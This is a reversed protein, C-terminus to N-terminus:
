HILRLCQIHLLKYFTVDIVFYFCINDYIFANSNIVCAVINM